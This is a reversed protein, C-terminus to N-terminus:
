SDAPVGGPADAEGVIIEISGDPQRVLRPRVPDFQDRRRRWTAILRGVDSEGAVSELIRRTPFVIELGDPALAEAPSIWRWDVVEGPQPRVTQGAPRRTLYFRTDFRRPRGEPTIWRALPVLRDFAPVLRSEQLAAKWSRGAELAARLRICDADGAVRGDPRRAVLLGVEEFLERIAASQVEDPYEHDEDHVSGGPFVYAGPAFAAASPRRMMLLRWPRGGRLVLVSAAPRPAPPPRDSPAM